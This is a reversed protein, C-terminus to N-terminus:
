QIFMHDMLKVLNDTTVFIIDAKEFTKLHEENSILAMSPYLSSTAKFLKGYDHECLELSNYCSITRVKFHLLCYM